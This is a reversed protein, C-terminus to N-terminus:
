HRDLDPRASRVLHSPREVRDPVVEAAAGVVLLDLPKRRDQRGLSHERGELLARDDAPGPRVEELRRHRAGARNRRCAHHGDAHQRRVAAAPREGLQHATLERVRV